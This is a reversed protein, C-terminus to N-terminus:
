TVPLLRPLELLFTWLDIRTGRASKTNHGLSKGQFLEGFQSTSFPKELLASVPPFGRCFCSM